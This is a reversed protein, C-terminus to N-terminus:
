VELTRRHIATFEFGSEWVDGFIDEPSCCVVVPGVKTRFTYWWSGDNFRATLIVGHSCIRSFNSVLAATKDANRAEAALEAILPIEVVFVKNVSEFLSSRENVVRRLVDLDFDILDLDFRRV